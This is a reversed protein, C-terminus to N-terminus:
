QFPSEADPMDPLRSTNTQATGPTVLSSAQPINVRSSFSEKIQMKEYNIQVEFQFDSRGRRMKPVDIVYSGEGSKNMTLLGDLIHQKKSSESLSALGPTAIDWESVRPQSATWGVLQLEECMNKMETYLDGLADYSNLNTNRRCNDIYDVIVVSPRIGKRVMNKTIFSRLDAISPSGIPYAGLLLNGLKYNEKLYQWSELYKDSNLMIQSMPVGTLRACYRLVGDAETNDGVFIHVVDKGELIAYSGINVLLTSKGRGPPASVVYLEGPLPGGAIHAHDFSPLGTPVIAEKDYRNQTEIFERPNEAVEGLLVGITDRAKITLAKEIRDQIKEYDSETLKDGKTKIDKAASIVASTLKNLTAFKTFTDKAYELTYNMKYCSMLKEIALQKVMPDISYKQCYKDVASYMDSDTPLKSYKQTYDIYVNICIKSASDDFMDDEVISGYSEYFTPERLFAALYIDSTTSM